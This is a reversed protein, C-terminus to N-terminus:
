IPVKPLKARRRLLPAAPWRRLAALGRAALALNISRGGPQAGASFPAKEDFVNNAGVRITTGSLWKRWGDGAPLLDVGAFDIALAHM